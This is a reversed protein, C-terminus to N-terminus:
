SESTHDPLPPPGTSVSESPSVQVELSRLIFDKLDFEDSFGEDIGALRGEVGLLVPREAESVLDSDWDVNEIYERLQTLSLNGHAYDSLLLTAEPRM